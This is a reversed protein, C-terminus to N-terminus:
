HGLSKRQQRLITMVAASDVSAKDGGGEYYSQNKQVFKSRGMIAFPVGVSSWTKAVDLTANQLNEETDQIQGNLYQRLTRREEVLGDAIKYQTAENYLDTMPIKLAAVMGKLTSPIVQFRGTAWLQGTGIRSQSQFAIVEGIRMQTLPRSSFPQTDKANLKGYLKTVGNISRYYNYDNFTKSEGKLITSWILPYKSMADYGKKLIAAVFIGGVIYALDKKEIKM